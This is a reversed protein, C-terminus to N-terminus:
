SGAKWAALVEAEEAATLGAQRPRDLGLTREHALADAATEALPRVRLGAELTAAVDHTLVGHHSAPLWFPLSREGAWYGVKEAVLAEAPVPVQETGAPAVAGAVTDLMAALTTAPGSGDFTGTRGQEACDVIWAALDRVDIWSAPAEAADGPVLVRGGQSFRAPWYGFRDSVDGPGIILGARVVLAPMGAARVATESAVKIGGYIEPSRDGSETLVPEVLPGDTGQGRTVLDAYVNITSVFTWHGTDAALLDLAERVWRVSQLATDVVADFAPEDRLPALGDPASRDVQVLRAGEPVPGSSGRAACVVDHGRAVAEAAVARSLFVTGGFVLIRM